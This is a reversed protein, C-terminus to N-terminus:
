AFYFTANAHELVSGHNVELIHGIYGEVTATKPNPRDWSEYCARGAFEILDQGDGYQGNYPRDDRAIHYGGDEDDVTAMADPVKFATWAILEASPRVIQNTM